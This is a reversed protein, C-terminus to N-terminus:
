YMHEFQIGELMIHQWIFCLLRYLWPSLVHQEFQKGKWYLTNGFSPQCLLRCYM